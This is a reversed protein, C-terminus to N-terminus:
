FLYSIVRLAIIQPQILFVLLFFPKMSLNLTINTLACKEKANYLFIIVTLRLEFVKTHTYSSYM